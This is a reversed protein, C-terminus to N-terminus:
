IFLRQSTLSHFSKLIILTLTWAHFCVEQPLFSLQKVNVVMPFVGTHPDGYRSKLQQLTLAITGSKVKSPPQGDPFHLSSLATPLLLKDVAIVLRSSTTTNILVGHVRASPVRIIHGLAAPPAGDTVHFLVQTGPETNANVRLPPTMTLLRTYLQQSTYVDLSAYLKLEKQLESLEWDNNVRTADDKPLHLRLLKKSLYALSGQEEWSIAGRDRAMDKLDILSFKHDENEVLNLFQKQLRTFDGKIRSGM